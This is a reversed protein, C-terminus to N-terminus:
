LANLHFRHCEFFINFFIGPKSRRDGIKFILAQDIDTIDKGWSGPAGMYIKERVTYVIGIRDAYWVIDGNFLQANNKDLKKVKIKM